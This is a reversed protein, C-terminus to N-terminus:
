KEVKKACIVLIFYKVELYIFALSGLLWLTANVFLLILVKMNTQIVLKAFTIPYGKLALETALTIAFFFSESLTLASVNCDINM